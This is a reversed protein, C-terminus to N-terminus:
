TYKMSQLILLCHQDEKGKNALKWSTGMAFEIEKLWESIKPYKTLDEKWLKTQILEQATYLDAVTLKDGTIFFSRELRQELFKLGAELEKHLPNFEDSNLM